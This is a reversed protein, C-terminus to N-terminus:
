AERADIIKGTQVLALSRNNLPPHLMISLVPDKLRNRPIANRMVCQAYNRAASARARARACDSGLLNGKLILQGFSLFDTKELVLVTVGIKLLTM